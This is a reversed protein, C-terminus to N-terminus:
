GTGRASRPHRTPGGGRRIGFVRVRRLLDAGGSSQARAAPRGIRNAITDSGRAATGADPLRGAPLAAASTNAITAQIFRVGALVPHAVSNPVSLGPDRVSLFPRYRLKGADIFDGLPAFQMGSKQVIATPVFTECYPWGQMTGNACRGALDLRRGLMADIARGSVAVFPLFAWLPTASFESITSYWRSDAGIRKLDHAVLDAGRAKAGTLVDDVACNLFVDFEIMVYHDFHPFAQRAAYLVYDGNWWLTQGVPISPLGLASFDSTHRLVAFGEVALTENTEDVAVVFEGSRALTRAREAAAAISADWVHTRFLTLYSM